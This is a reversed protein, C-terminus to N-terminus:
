KPVVLDVSNHLAENGAVVDVCQEVALADLVVILTDLVVILADLVVVLAAVVAYAMAVVCDLVLDVDFM